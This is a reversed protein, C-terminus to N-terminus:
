VSAAVALLYCRRSPHEAGEYPERLCQERVEFGAARLAAAVVDPRHFFFDLSVAVEFLEDVHVTRGEDGEVHFAVLLPAGPRCVRRWEAFAEPLSRPDLHVISYFAVAGALEGDAMPLAGFDATQFRVEPFRRAAERVMGPSLDVGLVEVGHRRLREAVHGPGCGLDAVVGSGGVAEAFRALLHRDLPKGDLEDCLADAYASALADYGDRVTALDPQAAAREGTRPKREWRWVTGDEPDEVAGVFHFGCKELVRVSANREPLTHARIRQVESQESAFDVLARAAETAHGRGQYAPVFGYAIEVTGEAPPGKYMAVGIATRDAREVAAFGFRWPDPETRPAERLQRLWEESVEGGVLFDGLGPAVACGFDAEIRGSGEILGLLHDPALARLDLAGSTLCSSRTGLANSM